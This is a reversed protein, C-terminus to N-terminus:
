VTKCRLNDHLKLVKLVFVVPMSLLKGFYKFCKWFIGTNMDLHGYGCLNQDVQLIILLKWTEADTDVTRNM